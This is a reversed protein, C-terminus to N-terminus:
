WEGEDVTELDEDVARRIDELDDKPITGAFALLAGGHEGVPRAPRAESPRRAALERSFDLVKRKGAADLADLQEIVQRKIEEDEPRRKTVDSM